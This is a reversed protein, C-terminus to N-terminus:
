CERRMIPRESDHIATINPPTMNEADHFGSKSDVDPADDDMAIARVCREEARRVVLRHSCRLDSACEFRNAAENREEVAAHPEDRLAARADRFAGQAPEVVMAEPLRGPQRPLLDPEATLSLLFSPDTELEADTPEDVVSEVDEDRHLAHDTM